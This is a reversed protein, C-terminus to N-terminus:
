LGFMSQFGLQVKQQWGRSPKELRVQAKRCGWGTATPINTMAHRSEGPAMKFAPAPRGERGPRAGIRPCSLIARGTGRDPGPRVPGLRAPPLIVGHPGMTAGADLTVTDISMVRHPCNRGRMLPIRVVLPMGDTVLASPNKREAGRVRAAVESCKSYGCGSQTGSMRRM